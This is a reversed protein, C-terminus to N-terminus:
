LGGLIGLRANITVLSAQMSNVKTQLASIQSQMTAITAAQDSITSQQTTVTNKLEKVANVLIKTLASEDLIRKDSLGTVGHSDDVKYVMYPAYSEVQQAIFGISPKANPFKATDLTYNMPNLNMLVSLGDVFPTINTKIRQDSPNAWTTGSAKTATAGSITLLGAGDISMTNVSASSSSATYWFHGATEPAQYRLQLANVGFGYFEHDNNTGEYMVIKRNATASAFQLPCHVTNTGIGLGITSNDWFFNSNNQTYSGSSSSAFVVSGATFATSNGTGGGSTPLTQYTPTSGTGNSVLPNGSTGNSISGLQNTSDILMVQAGAAPSIGRIGSIFASNLQQAGTGTGAGIRLANSESAGVSNMYINSSSTASAGSGSNQGIGINNSGSTTTTMASAGLAVNNTGSTLAALTGNGIGTCSTSSLTFNGAGAGVFTNTPDGFAHLFRNNNIRIQGTTSTTTPLNVFTGSLQIGGTGGEITTTSGNELCGVTVTKVSAPGGGTGINVTTTTQDASLNITGSGSEMILASNTSRVVLGSTGAQVNTFSGGSASGFTCTKDANGAGVNVTTNSSDNSINITGTQSDMSIPGGLTRIIIDSSGSYLFTQSSSFQSGITTTKIGNGNGINITTNVADSSLNMLNTGSNITVTGGSVAIGGLCTNNIANNNGAM